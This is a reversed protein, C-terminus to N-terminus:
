YTSNPEINGYSDSNLLGITSQITTWGLVWNQKHGLTYLMSPCPTYLIQIWKHASSNRLPLPPAKPIIISPQNWFSSTNRLIEHQGAPGQTPRTAPRSTKNIPHLRVMKWTLGRTQTIFSSDWQLTTSFYCECKSRFDESWIIQCRIWAEYRNEKKM